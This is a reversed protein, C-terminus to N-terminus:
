TCTRMVPGGPDEAGQEASPSLRRANWQGAIPASIAPVRRDRRSRFGLHFADPMTRTKGAVLELPVLEYDVSYHGTRKITVSGDRDGFMGYQVAKEGVERAENQDVDSVCGVFSRQIYGLTDGRVRTIQLEEKVKQTLLDALAGSEPCNCMAM